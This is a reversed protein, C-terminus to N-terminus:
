CIIFILIRINDPSSFHRSLNRDRVAINVPLSCGCGAIDVLLPQIVYIRCIICVTYEGFANGSQIWQIRIPYTEEPNASGFVSVLIQKVPMSILQEILSGSVNLDGIVSPVNGSTLVIYRCYIFHGVLRIITIEM